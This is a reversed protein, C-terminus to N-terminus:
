KKNKLIYNEIFNTAKKALDEDDEGQIIEIESENTSLYGYPMLCICGKKHTNILHSITSNTLCMGLHLWFFNSDSNSVVEYMQNSENFRYCLGTKEM